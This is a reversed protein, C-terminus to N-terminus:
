HLRFYLKSINTWGDLSKVKTYTFVRKMGFVAKKVSEPPQNPNKPPKIKPMKKRMKQDLGCHNELFM